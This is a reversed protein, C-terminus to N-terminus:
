IVALCVFDLFRANRVLLIAYGPCEAVIYLHVPLLRNSTARCVHESNQKLADCNSFMYETKKSLYHLTKESGKCFFFFSKIGQTIANSIKNQDYALVTLDRILQERFRKHSVIGKPLGICESHSPRELV